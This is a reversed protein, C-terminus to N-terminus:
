HGVFGTKSVVTKLICPLEKELFNEAMTVPYKLSCSRRVECTEILIQRKSKTIHRKKRGEEENKIENVM